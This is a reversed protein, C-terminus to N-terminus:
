SSKNKFIYYMFGITSISHCKLNFIRAFLSINKPKIYDTIICSTSTYSHYAINCINASHFTNKLYINSDYNHTLFSSLLLPIMLKNSFHYKKLLSNNLDPKLLNDLISM